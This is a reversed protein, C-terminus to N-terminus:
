SPLRQVKRHCLLVVWIIGRFLLWYLLYDLCLGLILGTWLHNRFITVTVIPGPVSAIVFPFFIGSLWEFKSLKGHGVLRLAAVGVVSLAWMVTAAITAFRTVRKV